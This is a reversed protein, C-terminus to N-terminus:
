DRLAENVTAVAKRREAKRGRAHRLDAVVADQASSHAALLLNLVGAEGDPLQGKTREADRWCAKSANLYATTLDDPVGAIQLRVRLKELDAQFDSWGGGWVRRAMDATEVAAAHRFDRAARRGNQLGTLWAGLLAFGGSGVASVIAIEVETKM